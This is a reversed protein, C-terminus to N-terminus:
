HDGLLVTNAASAGSFPVSKNVRSTETFVALRNHGRQIIHYPYDPLIARGM